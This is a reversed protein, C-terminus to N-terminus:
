GTVEQEALGARLSAVVSRRDMDMITAITRTIQDQRGTIYGKYWEAQNPMGKRSELEAWQKIQERVVTQARDILTIATDTTTM